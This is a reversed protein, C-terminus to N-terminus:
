VGVCDVPIILHVARIVSLRSHLSHMEKLNKVVMEIAIEITIIQTKQDILNSYHETPLGSAVCLIPSHEQRNGVMYTTM